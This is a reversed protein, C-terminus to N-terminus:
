SGREWNPDLAPLPPPAAAPEDGAVFVPFLAQMLRLGLGPEIRDLTDWLSAISVIRLDEWGDLSAPWQAAARMQDALALARHAAEAQQVFLRLETHALSLPTM